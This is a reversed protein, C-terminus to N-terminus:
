SARTPELATVHLAWANLAARREPLHRARNYVGAVGARAAGSVHNVVAEVVHPPFGLENLGTVLTRRLDHGTWHPLAPRGLATCIASVRADLHSKAKSFGSVPEEGGSGSFVFPLRGAKGGNLKASAEALEREAVAQVKRRQLIAVVAPALPVSHPLGNKTRSGPLEWVPAKGDLERLESWMMGAVETRRQGTLALVLFFDRWLDALPPADNLGYMIRLTADDDHLATAVVALEEDTLARDRKTNDHRMRLRDTPARDILNGRDPDACWNFFVRLYAVAKNSAAFQEQGDLNDLVATVDARSISALQRDKWDAVAPGQLFTSYDRYTNDALHAQRNVLFSEVAKSFTSAEAAAAEHKAEAVPDAGREASTKFARAKDRAEALGFADPVYHGLVMRRLKGGVRDFVFFTKLGKASVRVGFSPLLTDFYDIRGAGAPLAVNRIFADTLKKKPM